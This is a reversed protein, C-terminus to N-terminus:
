SAVWSLGFNFLVPPASGSFAGSFAQRSLHFLLLLTALPCVKWPSPLAWCNWFAPSLRFICSSLVSRGMQPGSPVKKSCDGHHGRSPCWIPTPQPTFLLSPCPCLWPTSVWRTLRATFPFDFVHHYAPLVLSWLTIKKKIPFSQWRQLGFKQNYALRYRPKVEKRFPQYHGYLDGFITHELVEAANITHIFTSVAWFFFDKLWTGFEEM